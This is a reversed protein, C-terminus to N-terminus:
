VKSIKRSLFFYYDSLSPGQATRVQLDDRARTDLGPGARVVVEELRGLALGLREELAELLFLQKM